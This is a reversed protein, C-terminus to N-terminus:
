QNESFTVLLCFSSKKRRFENETKNIHLVFWVCIKIDIQSEISFLGESDERVTTISVSTLNQGQADTWVVYPAPFWGSSECQLLEASVCSNCTNDRRSCSQGQVQLQINTDEYSGAYDVFCTYTGNDTVRVDALRLSVIGEKLGEISLQARQRYSEDQEELNHRGRRYLYVPSDFRTKFWRIDVGEPSLSISCKCDLVVSSGTTATIPHTPGSVTFKETLLLGYIANDNECFLPRDRETLLMK